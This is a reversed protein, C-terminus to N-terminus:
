CTGAFHPNQRKVKGDHSLHGTFKRVLKRSLHPQDGNGFGVDLNFAAKTAAGVWRKTNAVKKRQVPSSTSMSALRLLQTDCLRGSSAAAGKLGQNTCFSTGVLLQYVKSNSM